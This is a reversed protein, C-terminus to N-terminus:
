VSLASSLGIFDMQLIQVEPWKIDLKQVKPWKIANKAAQVVRKHADVSVKRPWKIGNERGNIASLSLNEQM